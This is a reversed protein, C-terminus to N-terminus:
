RRLRGPEDLPVCPDSRLVADRIAAKLVGVVGIRRGGLGGVLQGQRQHLLRPAQDGGLRVSVDAASVGASMGAPLRSDSCDWDTPDVGVVPQLPSDRKRMRITFRATFSGYSSTCSNSRNSKPRNATRLAPKLRNKQRRSRVRAGLFRSFGASRVSSM